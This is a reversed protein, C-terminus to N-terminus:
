PGIVVLGEDLGERIEVRDKSQLGLVVDVRRQVEGDQIIVFDRGQFTRLAGPPLWLVNEKRDVQVVVMALEGMVLPADEAELAVRVSQGTSESGVSQSIGTFPLQRLSGPFEVGPQGALQVMVAQGVSLEAAEEPSPVFAVELDNPDALTMVLQFASVQSGPAIGISLIEGDFPARLEVAALNKQALSLQAEANSLKAEELHLEEPDPGAKLRDWTEKALQYQAEALSIEAQSHAIEGASPNRTYWNLLALAQDRRQRAALLANLALVREPDTEPRHAVKDYAKQAAQFAKEATAYDARAKEVVLEDTTPGDALQAAVGRVQELAQEAEVLALQAEAAQVPANRRLAELDFRAQEV